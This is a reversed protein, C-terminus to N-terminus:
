GGVIPLTFHFRAESSGSFENRVIALGLAQMRDAWFAVVGDSEPERGLYREYLLRAVQAPSSTPSLPVPVPGAGTWFDLLGAQAAPGTADGTAQALILQGGNTWVLRPV